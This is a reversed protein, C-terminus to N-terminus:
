EKNYYKKLNKKFEDAITAFMKDSKEKDNYNEALSLSAATHIEPM